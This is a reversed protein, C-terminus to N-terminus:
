QDNQHWHQDFLWSWSTKQPFLATSATSALLTASAASTMSSAFTELAWFIVVSSKLTMRSWSNMLKLVFIVKNKHKPLFIKKVSDHFGMKFKLKKGRLPQQPWGINNKQFSTSSDWIEWGWSYVSVKLSFRVWMNRDRLPMEFSVNWHSVGQIIIFDYVKPSKQSKEM